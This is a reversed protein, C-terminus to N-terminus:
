EIRLNEPPGAFNIGFAGIACMDVEVVVPGHIAVSEGLVSTFDTAASIKRYALGFSEAVKRFDPMQLDTFMRRGEYYADQINRIVGYGSDNMVILTVDAGTEALTGLEGLCLAIGGDGVMTIAKRRTALAAGIGHPLGQGIGGGVAHVAQRPGFLTPARNGWISNSLTVDRVWLGDRPMVAAIADRLKAYVGMQQVLEAEAQTRVAIVEHKFDPTPAYDSELINTVGELILVADGRVFEVSDYGRGDALPDVDLRILRKPLPASYDFTENSRLHSGVVIMLDCEKYLKLVPEAVTFAALSMPHTEPLIGRGCVSSIVAFGLDALRRVQATANRAGGGVWILPKHAERMVNALREIDKPAPVAQSVRVSSPAPTVPVTAKQVDIPIEVSVPGTPDTLATQIAEQITARADEPRLIRFSAKSVSSLMATQDPVEHIFGWGRDLYAREIQGTLHIMPTSATLAEILAGCANGAGTGTSTVALSLQGTVRAAADAMNVAGAEGRAPIFRIHNRRGLADLIPMNHISIVGFGIDVGAAELEIILIDGVAIRTEDGYDGKPM